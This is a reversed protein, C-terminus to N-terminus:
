RCISQCLKVGVAKKSDVFNKHWWTRFALFYAFNHVICGDVIYTHELATYLNYVPEKESIIEISDVRVCESSLSGAVVFIENGEQLEKVQVWGNSTLFRHNGTTLIRGEMNSHKIKWISEPAHVLKKTVERICVKRLASDYTFISDGVNMEKIKIFGGPTHVLASAPFCGPGGGGGGGGGHHQNQEQRQQERWEQEQTTGAPPEHGGPPMNGM